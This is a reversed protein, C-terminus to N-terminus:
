DDDFVVVDGSTTAVLLVPDSPMAAIAAAFVSLPTMDSM